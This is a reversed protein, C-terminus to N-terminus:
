QQMAPPASRDVAQCCKRSSLVTVLSCISMTGMLMRSTLMGLTVFCSYLGDGTLESARVSGRGLCVSLAGCPGFPTDELEATM